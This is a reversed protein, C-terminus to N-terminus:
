HKIQQLLQNPKYISIGKRTVNLVGERKLGSIISSVTQRCSGIMDAFDQHTTPIDIYIGGSLRRGYNLSLHQLLKIFRESANDSAIYLVMDGLSHIRSSLKEIVLLAIRPEDLLLQNFAHKKIKLVISDTLAQAYVNNEQNNEGTVGFLDGPLCFWQILENGLQSIRSIKVRGNLLIYVSHDAQDAQFIYEGKHFQYEHSISDLYRFEGASLQKMFSYPLFEEANEM